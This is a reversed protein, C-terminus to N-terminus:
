KNIKQLYGALQDFTGGFGQQMSSTMEEFKDYEEETANIPSSKITLITKGGNETFTVKNLIELPWPDIFSTKISNGEEDAFSSAFVIKEPEIIERYVFKGWMKGGGFSMGYHFIGGPRFDLTKVEIKSGKPGWWQALHKAESWIKFVLKRPADFVRTIELDNRKAM